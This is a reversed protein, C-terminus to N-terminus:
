AKLKLVQVPGTGADMLGAASYQQAEFGVQNTAAFIENYRYLVIPGEVILVRDFAGFMVVRQGATYTASMTDNAFLPYGLLRPRRGDELDILPKQNGDKLNTLNRITTSHAMFSGRQRYEAPVSYELNRLDDYTVVGVQGSEVAQCDDVVGPVNGTGVTFRRQRVRGILQGQMQAVVTEGLPFAIIKNSAKVIRSTACKPYLNLRGTAEDSIVGGGTDDGNLFVGETPLNATPVYVGEAIPNPIITAGVREWVNTQRAALEFQGSYVAPSVLYGGAQPNDTHINRREMRISNLNGEGARAFFDSVAARGERTEVDVTRIENGRQYKRYEADWAPAHRKEVKLSKSPALQREMRQLQEERELATASM